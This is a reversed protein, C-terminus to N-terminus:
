DEDGLLEEVADCTMRLQLKVLMLTHITEAKLRSQGMSVTDRGSSFIREVAVASGQCGDAESAVFPVLHTSVLYQEFIEHLNIFTHTNRGVHTGGHWHIV